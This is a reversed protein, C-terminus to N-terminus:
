IGLLSSSSGSGSQKGNTLFDFPNFGGSLTSLVGCLLFMVGLAIVVISTNYDQERKGVDSQCRAAGMRYSAAAIALAATIVLILGFM